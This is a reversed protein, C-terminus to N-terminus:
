FPPLNLVVRVLCKGDFGPSIGKEPIKPRVLGMYFVKPKSCDEQGWFNWGFLDTGVLRMWLLFPDIKPCRGSNCSLSNLPVVFISGPHIPSVSVM